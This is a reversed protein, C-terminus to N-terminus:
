GNYNQAIVKLRQKASDSITPDSIMIFHPEFSSRQIRGRLQHLQAIGFREPNEVVMTTANEINVGVEIVTTCILIKIKQNYFEKITNQKEQSSMRGHFIGVKSNGFVKAIQRRM